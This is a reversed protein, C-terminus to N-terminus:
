VETGGGLLRLLLVGNSAGPVSGLCSWFALAMLVTGHRLPVLGGIPKMFPSAVVDSYVAAVASAGFFSVLVPTM